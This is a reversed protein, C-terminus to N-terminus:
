RLLDNAPQLLFFSILKVCIHRMNSLLCFSALDGLSAQGCKDPHSFDPKYVCCILLCFIEFYLLINTSIKNGCKKFSHAKLLLILASYNLSYYPINM